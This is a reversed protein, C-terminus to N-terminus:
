MLETYNNEIKAFEYTKEILDTIVVINHIYNHNRAIMISLVKNNYYNIASTIHETFSTQYIITAFTAYHDNETLNIGILRYFYDDFSFAIIYITDCDKTIILTLAVVKNDLIANEYEKKQSCEGITQRYLYTSGNRYLGYIINKKPCHSVIDNNNACYLAGLFILILIQFM